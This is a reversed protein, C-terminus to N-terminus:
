QEAGENDRKAHTRVPGSGGLERAHVSEFTHPGPNGHGKATEGFHKQECQAPMPNGTGTYVEGTIGSDRFEEPQVSYNDSTPRDLQPDTRLHEPRASSHEVNQRGSDSPLKVGGQASMESLNGEGTPRHTHMGQATAQSSAIRELPTPEQPHSSEEPHSAM